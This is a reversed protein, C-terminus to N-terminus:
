REFGNYIVMRELIIINYVIFNIIDICVSFFLFINSFIMLCPKVVDVKQHISYDCDLSVFGLAFASSTGFPFWSRWM